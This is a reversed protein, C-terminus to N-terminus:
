NEIINRIKNEWYIRYIKQYNYKNKQLNDIIIKKQEELFEKTICDWTDVIVVPMESFLEDNFYCSQIIPVRGLALAEYTRHCDPGNGIPSIVFMNEDCSRWFDVREQFPLWTICDSKILIDYAMNRNSIRKAPPLNMTHQFNTVAHAKTENLPKLSQKIKILDYEQEIPTRDKVNPDHFSIGLPVPCLKPHYQVCNISFWKIIKDSNLLINADYNFDNPIGYDSRGSVLIIPHELLHVSQTLTSIYDTKCFVIDKKNIKVLVQVVDEHSLIKNNIFEQYGRESVLNCFKEM